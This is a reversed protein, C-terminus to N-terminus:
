FRSGRERVQEETGIVLSVFVRDGGVLEGKIAPKQSVGMPPAAYVPGQEEYGCGVSWVVLEGQKPTRVAHDVDDGITSWVLEAPAYPEDMFLTGDGALPAMIRIAPASHVNAEDHTSQGMHMPSSSAQDTLPDHRRPTSPARVPSSTGLRHRTVHKGSPSTSNEVNSQLQGAPASTPAKTTPHHPGRRARTPTKPSGSGIPQGAHKTNLVNARLVDIQLSRRRSKSASPAPLIPIKPPARAQPYTPPTTPSPTTPTGPLDRFLSDNPHVTNFINPPSYSQFDYVPSRPENDHDEAATPTDPQQTKSPYCWETHWLPLTSEPGEVYRWKIARVTLEYCKKGHAGGDEKEMWRKNVYGLFRALPAWFTTDLHQGSLNRSVWDQLNVQHADGTPPSTYTCDGHISDSLAADETPEASIGSANLFAPSFTGSIGKGAALSFLQAESSEQKRFSTELAPGSYIFDSTHVIRTLHHPYSVQDYTVFELYPTNATARSIGASNLDQTM